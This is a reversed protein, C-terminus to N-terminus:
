WIQAPIRPVGIQVSRISSLVGRLRISKEGPRGGMDDAGGAHERSSSMSAPAGMMSPLRGSNSACSRSVEPAMKVDLSM